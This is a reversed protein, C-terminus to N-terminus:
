KEVFARVSVTTIRPETNAVITVTKRIENLQEAGPHFKVKIKDTKGPAIPKEPKVPTTCGCSAKVDEIILPKGGTNTVIFEAFNDTEAKVNGFDHEMKNVTFSTVNSKEDAIRQKEEEEIRKLEEKREEATQAGEAISSVVEGSKAEVKEEGCAGLIVLIGILFFTRKM